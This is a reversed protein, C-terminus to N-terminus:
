QGSQQRGTVTGQGTITGHVDRSRGTFMEHDDRSRGTITTGTNRSQRGNARGAAAGALRLSLPPRRRRPQRERDASPAMISNPAAILCITIALRQPPGTTRTQDTATLPPSLSMGPRSRHHTLRSPHSPQSNPSAPPHPITSSTAKDKRDIRSCHM